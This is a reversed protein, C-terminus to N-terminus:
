QPQEGAAATVKDLCFRNIMTNRMRLVNLDVLPVARRDLVGDVINDLLRQDGPRIVLLMEAEDVPPQENARQGNKNRKERQGPVELIRERQRPSHFCFVFCIAGIIGLSYHTCEMRNGSRNQDGADARVKRQHADQRQVRREALFADKGHGDLLLAGFRDLPLGAGAHLLVVVLVRQVNGALVTAAFVLRLHLTRARVVDIHVTHHVLRDDRLIEGLQDILQVALLALLHPQLPPVFPLANWGRNPSQLESFFRM